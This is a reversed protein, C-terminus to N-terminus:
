KETLKQKTKQIKRLRYLYQYIRDRSVNLAIAIDKPQTKSAVLEDIRQKQKITFSKYIGKTYNYAKKPIMPKNPDNKTIENEDCKLIKLCLKKLILLQEYCKMAEIYTCSTFKDIVLMDRHM